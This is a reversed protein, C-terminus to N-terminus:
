YTALQRGPWIDDANVLLVATNAPLMGVVAGTSCSNNAVALEHELRDDGDGVVLVDHCEHEILGALESILDARGSNKGCLGDVFAELNGPAGNHM